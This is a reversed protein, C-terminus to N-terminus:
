ARVQVNEGRSAGPSVWTVVAFIAFLPATRLGDRKACALTQATARPADLQFTVLIWTSARGYTPLVRLRGSCLAALNSLAESYFRESTTQLNVHM